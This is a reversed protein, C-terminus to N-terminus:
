ESSITKLPLSSEVGNQNSAREAVIKSMGFMKQVTKTFCSKHEDMSAHVFEDIHDRLDQLFTADDSKKKRCSTMSPTQPTKASSAPPVNNLNNQSEMTSVVKGREKFGRKLEGGFDLDHFRFRLWSDVELNPSLSNGIEPATGVLEGEEKVLEGFDVFSQFYSDDVKAVADHITKAVFGYSRDILDKVALKPYAWLVLNGFYEMPVPPKMRARGNVAVRVQTTENEGLGRAVTVKKWLHALLCEFTSYRLNHNAEEGACVARKLRALFDSSFRVVMNDISSVSVLPLPPSSSAAASGRFEIDRHDHECRPPSRPVAIAARNHFPPPDVQGSARVLRAWAVFFASMSQGDAVRHHATQGIVLGGCAFRNLQIQMVEEVDEIGPRLQRLEESPDLPLRESLTAGVYTEIVRVGAGNLHICPRNQDDTVIRGALHPFHALAKALGEKMAENGPMPAQFAYLVAVHLDFAAKDFITLPVMEDPAAAAAPPASGSPAPKLISTKFIEVAM